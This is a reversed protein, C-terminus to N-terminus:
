DDLHNQYLSLNYADQLAYFEVTPVGAGVPGGPNLEVIPLLGRTSSSVFLTDAIALEEVKVSREVIPLGQNRAIELVLYRTIGPLVDDCLSPTTLAGGTLLFVNSTSAETVQGERFLIVEEAEAEKAEQLLLVNALLSISKIKNKRWRIDERVIAKAPELKAFEFPMATIFCTPKVEKPFTHSRVDSAGRTIQLYIKANMLASRKLVRMMDAFIQDVDVSLRIASLSELLRKRHLAPARMRGNICALVEYVGDGFLFGRDMPSIRAESLPMLEGNLVCWIM